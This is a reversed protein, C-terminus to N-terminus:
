RGSRAVYSSRSTFKGDNTKITILDDSNSSRMAFAWDELSIAGDDVTM